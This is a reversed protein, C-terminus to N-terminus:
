DVKLLRRSGTRIGNVKLQYIYVGANINKGSSTRGNWIINHQGKVMNEDSLVVVLKGMMDYVSLEVQSNEALFYSITTQERFPNPYNQALANNVEEVVPSVSTIGGDVVLAKICFNGTNQYGSPDDYYYFDLWETGDHYYSEEPNAASPVVVKQDPGCLLVPVISTRDYAHGGASLEVYVYFENGDDIEIPTNLDVTHFGHYPINGYQSTLEGSLDVGDFDDYITITFDVNDDVSYFSVAKITETGTAIFGNFAETIGTKTDRWGHYDHYYAKDFQWTGSNQFSVAGMEPHQCSHKDYYSIWFYGDYGWGSGWSNKTLWAGPQPADTVRTDDWGIIAIAHNPDQSNSPPQYHEYQGNIFNSSYCMCTGLVGESMIKNKIFDINELNPGAVYWEIDRPYYMSYSTDFREPPNEFWVDDKETEDNAEPSYVAGEGRTIYAATVLYDGGLHVELGQGNNFPPDLDQNYYENFGNWWDLHYEALNPEIDDLTDVWNNLMLLNGEIAAMVGHTWCTGSTQSKVSTVFNEGNYDRLDFTAPLQAVVGLAFGLVFLLTFFNKM